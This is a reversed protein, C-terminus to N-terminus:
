WGGYNYFDYTGFTCDTDGSELCTCTMGFMGEVEWTEGPTRITNADADICGALFNVGSIKFIKVWVPNAMKM